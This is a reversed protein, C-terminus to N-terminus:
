KKLSLIYQVMQRVSDKSLAPHPTMPVQGWNGTGGSIVKAVLRDVTTDAANAYRAAVESYAPGIASGAGSKELRHCTTCDSSAIMELGPASATAAGGGPAPATTTTAATDKKTETSGGGGCAVALTTSVLVIFVKKM